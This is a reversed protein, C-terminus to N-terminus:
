PLTNIRLLPLVRGIRQDAVNGAADFPEFWIAYATGPLLGTITYSAIPGAVGAKLIPGGSCGGGRFCNTPPTQKYINYGAVGKNDTAPVWTFSAGTRTVNTLTQYTPVITPVLLDSGAPYVTVNFTLDSFGESNTARVKATVLGLPSVTPVWSVVGTTPNVTMGVPGSAISFTPTPLGTAKVVYNAGSSSTLPTTNAIIMMPEGIVAVVKEALFLVPAHSIAPPSLTTVQLFQGKSEGSADFARVEFFHISGPQLGSVTTTLATINDQQRVGAEYIRYGLIPAPGTSAKWALTVATQAIKTATLTSPTSPQLTTVTVSGSLASAAGGAFAKVAYIGTQGPARNAITATTGVITAATPQFSSCARGCKTLVFVGYTVPGATSTVPGWILKFSTEGINSVVPTTPTAPVPGVVSGSFTQNTSGFSNTARTTVTVPGIQSLTPTWSVLGSVSNIIMGIPASILSYTAHPAGEAIARYQFPVGTQVTSFFPNSVFTPLAKPEALPQSNFVVKTEKGGVLGGIMFLRGTNDLVTSPNPISSFGDFTWFDGVLHYTQISGSFNVFIKDDPGHMAATTAGSGPIPAALKDWTNTSITYRYVTNVPSNASNLGGFTYIHDGGDSSAAFHSLAQPLAAQASWTQSVPNYVEVSVTPGTATNGGIAYIRGLTDTAYAHYSRGTALSALASTANNGVNPNYSVVSALAAGSQDAGGFVLINGNPLNGVGVGTRAQDLRPSKTWSTASSPLSLVENSVNGNTGGVLYITGNTARLASGNANPSPLSPGAALTINLASATGALLVSVICVFLVFGLSHQLTSKM